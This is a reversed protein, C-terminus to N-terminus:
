KGRKIRLNLEILKRLGFWKWRELPRKGLYAFFDKLNAFEELGKKRRTQCNRVFINYDLWEPKFIVGKHRIYYSYLPEQCNYFKVRGSEFLRLMHDWDQMYKFRVRCPIEELIRKPALITGSVITARNYSRRFGACIKQHTEPLIVLREVRNEVRKISCGVVRRGPNELAKALQKEIRTPDSIDDADQNIIYEGRSMGIAINRSSALNKPEDVKSYIRIRPDNFSQCIELSADTSYDDIIILEFNDYTQDLISQIANAVYKEENFMCMIVSILPSNDCIKTM